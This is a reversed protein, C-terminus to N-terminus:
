KGDWGGTDVGGGRNRMGGGKRMGRVGEGRRRRRKRAMEPMIEMDSYKISYMIQIGSLM